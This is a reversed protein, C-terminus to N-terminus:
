TARARLRQAAWRSHSVSFRSARAMRREGGDVEVALVIRRPCRFPQPRQESAQGFQFWPQVLPVALWTGAEGARWGLENGARLCRVTRRRRLGCWARPGERSQLQRMARRAGSMRTAANRLCRPPRNGRTPVAEVAHVIELARWHNSPVVRGSQIAASTAVDPMSNPSTNRPTPGRGRALRVEGPEYRSHSLQTLAAHTRYDDTAQAGTATAPVATTSPSSSGRPPNGAPRSPRQPLRRGLRASSPASAAQEVRSQGPQHPNITLPV